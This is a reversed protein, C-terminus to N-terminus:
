LSKLKPGSWLFNSTKKPLVHARIMPKDEKETKKM